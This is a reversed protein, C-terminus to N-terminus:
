LIQRNTDVSFRNFGSLRDITTQSRQYVTQWGGSNVRAYVEYCPFADHQGSLSITGDKNITLDFEYNIAPAVSIFPNKSDLTCRLKIESNSKSILTARIGTEPAQQEQTAVLKGTNVSYIYRKTIGTRAEVQWDSSTNTFNATVYQKTRFTVDEEKSFGRGDGSFTSMNPDNIPLPILGTPDPVQNEAIFTQIKVAFNIAM